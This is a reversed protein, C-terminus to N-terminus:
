ITKKKQAITLSSLVSGVGGVAISYPDSPMGYELAAHLIKYKGTSQAIGANEKHLDFRVIDGEYINKVLREPLYLKHKNINQLRELRTGCRPM